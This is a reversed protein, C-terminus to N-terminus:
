IDASKLAFSSGMPHRIGRKGMKQWGRLQEILIATVLLGLGLYSLSLEGHITAVAKASQKIM